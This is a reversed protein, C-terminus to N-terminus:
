TRTPWHTCLDTKEYRASLRQGTRAHGGEDQPISEHRHDRPHPRTKGNGAERKRHPDKVTARQQGALRGPAAGSPAGAATSRRGASGRHCWGQEGQRSAALSFDVSPAPRRPGVRETGASHPRRRFALGGRARMWPVSPRRRPRPRPPHVPPDGLGGARDGAALPAQQAVRHHPPPPSLPRQIGVGAAPRRGGHQRSTIPVRGARLAVRGHSCWHELKTCPCYVADVGPERRPSAALARQRSTPRCSASFSVRSDDALSTRELLSTGRRLKRTVGTAAWTTVGTTRPPTRWWRVSDM